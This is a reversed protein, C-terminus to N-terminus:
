TAIMLSDMMTNESSVEAAFLLAGLDRHLPVTMKRCTSRRPTLLSGAQELAVFTNKFNPKAPNNA